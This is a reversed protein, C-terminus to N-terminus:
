SNEWVQKSVRWNGRSEGPTGAAGHNKATHVGDLRVDLARVALNEVFAGDAGHGEFGGGAGVGVDVGLVRAEAVLM